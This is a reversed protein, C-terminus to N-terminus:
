VARLLLFPRSVCFLQALTSTTEKVDALTCEEWSSEAKVILQRVNLKDPKKMRFPWVQFFDSVKTRSCFAAIHRTYQAWDMSLPDSDPIFTNIVHELFEFNLFNWLVCLKRWLKSISVNQDIKDFCDNLYDMTTAQLSAGMCVVKGEFLSISVSHKHLYEFVRGALRNCLKELEHIQTKLELFAFHATDTQNSFTVRSLEIISSYFVDSTMM